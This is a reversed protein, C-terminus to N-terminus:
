KDRFNWIRVVGSLNGEADAGLRISDLDAPYQEKGRTGAALTGAKASCASQLSLGPWAQNSQSREVSIAERAASGQM